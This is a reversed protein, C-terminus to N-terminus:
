FNSFFRREKRRLSLMRLLLPLITHIARRHTFINISPILDFSFLFSSFFDESPYLNHHHHHHHLHFFFSFFDRELYHFFIVGCGYNEMKLKRGSKWKENEECCKKQVIAFYFLYILFKKYKKIELQRLSSIWKIHCNLNSNFSLLLLFTIFSSKWRCFGRSHM